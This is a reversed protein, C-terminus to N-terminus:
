PLELTNTEGTRTVITVFDQGIATVHANSLRDGIRDGVFLTKGNIVASPNKARYFISQLKYPAPPPVSVSQANPSSNTSAPATVELANVAVAPSPEPTAAVAPQPKQVVPQPIVIPAPQVAPASTAAQVNDFTSITRARVKVEGADGRMWQWILLGALLLIVVILAPLLFDNGRSQRQPMPAFDPRLLAPGEASASKPQTAKARKLADNILSM